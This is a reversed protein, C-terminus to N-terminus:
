WQRIRILAAKKLENLKQLALFAIPMKVTSAPYFYHSNSVNFYYNKFSAKNKADRDIQTYVIQVRLSDKNQLINDFYQPYKKMLIELLNKPDKGAPTKQALSAASIMGFCFFLCIYSSLKLNM